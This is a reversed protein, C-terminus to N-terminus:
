TLNVTISIGEVKQPVPPCNKKVTVSINTITPFEERLAIVTLEAIQEILRCKKQFVREVLACIEAYNVAHTLEDTQAAQLYDADYAIDVLFTNGREQEEAYWGIPAKLELGHIQFRAKKNM